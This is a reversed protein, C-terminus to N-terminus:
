LKLITFSNNKSNFYIEDLFCNMNEINPIKHYKCKDQIINEIDERYKVCEQKKQFLENKSLENKESCGTLVISGLLLSIVIIKKFM